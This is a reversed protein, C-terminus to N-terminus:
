VELELQRYCRAWSPVELQKLQEWATRGKTLRGLTYTDEYARTRKDFMCLAVLPVAGARRDKLGIMYTPALYWKPSEVEARAITIVHTAIKTLNSTGHFDGLTPVIQKLREDKKRMHAVVLIPKQVLLTLERIRTLTETLSRNEDQDERADIYHLHDVVIMDVQHHIGEIAATLERAGFIRGRYYTLLGALHEGIWADAEADLEPPVLDDCHGLYWDVFPLDRSGALKRLYLQRSLWRHKERMELENEEAELAFYAVRYGARVNATAVNLALETKGLGTEAGLLITDVPLIARFVDDLYPVGYKMQRAALKQRQHREGAVRVAASRFGDAAPKRREDIRQLAGITESVWDGDLELEAWKLARERREELELMALVDTRHSRVIEAYALTNEPTPVKLALEGLFAIGGVADLKGGRQIESELMVVDIPKGAADLNRMAEFVVKHRHDYFDDIELDKLQGLMENRCLVGGLVSAECDLNHPLVRRDRTM